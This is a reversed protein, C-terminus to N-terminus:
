GSRHGLEKVLDAVYEEIRLLGSVDVLRKGFAVRLPVRSYVEMEATADPEIFVHLLPTGHNLPTGLKYIVEVRFTTVDNNPFTIDIDNLRSVYTVAANIVRHKDANNLSALLALPDSRAVQKGRQYPQYSDITARDRKPVGALKTDRQSVGRCNPVLYDDSSTFIPFATGGKRGSLEYVLHDLASRLNHVIDGVIISWEVPHPKYVAFEVVKHGADRNLYGVVGYPGSNIHTRIAEDLSHRHESARAIKALCGSLDIKRV